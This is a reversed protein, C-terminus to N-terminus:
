GLRKRMERHPIGTLESIFPESSFEWGLAEYFGFATHRANLWLESAGEEAAIRELAIMLERGVGLRQAAPAVVVQRVQRVEEGAEPLLRASGLLEGAPGLAIAFRSGHAPHYWEFDREVGFPGYLVDFYLGLVEAFRPWDHTVTEIRFGPM